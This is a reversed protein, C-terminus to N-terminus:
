RGARAVKFVVGENREPRVTCSLGSKGLRSFRPDLVPPPFRDPKPAPPPTVVVRYEGPAVGDGPKLTHMRFSGDERIEGNASTTGDASEFVVTGGALDSAETGDTWVVKGEVPYRNGGCGALGLALLAALALRSPTAAHRM